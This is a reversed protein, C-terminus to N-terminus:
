PVTYLQKGYVALAPNEPSMATVNPIGLDTAVQCALGCALGYRGANFAPGAVLVDPHAEMLAARIAAQAQEAQTAVFNDGGIITAIIQAAGNWHQELGRGPGVASPRVEVPVDAREEGGIGGFFQNIYHVVRLPAQAM